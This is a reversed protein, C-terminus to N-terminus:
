PNQANEDEEFSFGGCGYNKGPEVRIPFFQPLSSLNECAKDDISTHALYLFKLRSCKRLHPLGSGKINASELSLWALSKLKPLHKLGEDDISKSKLSVHTLSTLNALEALDKNGFRDSEVGFGDLQNEGSLFGVVDFPITKYAPLRVFDIPELGRAFREGLLDYVWDDQTKYFAVTGGAAKIQDIRGVRQWVPIVVAAIILGLAVAVMTLLVISQYKSKEETQKEVKSM